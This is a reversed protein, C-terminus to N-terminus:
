WATARPAAKRWPSYTTWVTGTALGNPAAVFGPMRALNMKICAKELNAVLSPNQSFGQPRTQAAEIRVTCSLVRGERDAVYRFSAEGVSGLVLSSLGNDWFYQNQAFMPFVVAQYYAFRPTDQRLNMEVTIPM